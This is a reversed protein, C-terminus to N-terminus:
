SKPCDLGVFPGYPEAGVLVDFPDLSVEGSEYTVQVGDSQVKILLKERRTERGNVDFYQYTQFGPGRTGITYGNKRSTRKTVGRKVWCTAAAGRSFGVRRAFYGLEVGPEDGLLSLKYPQTLDTRVVAIIFTDWMPLIAELAVSNAGRAALMEEGTPAYLILASQGPAVLTAKVTAGSAGVFRYLDTASGGAAQSKTQGLAITSVSQAYSPVANVLLFLIAATAASRLLVIM